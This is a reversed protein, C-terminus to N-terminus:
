QAGNGPNKIDNGSSNYIADCNSDGRYNNSGRVYGSGEQISCLGYAIAGWPLFSTIAEDAPSLGETHFNYCANFSTFCITRSTNLGRLELYSGEKIGKLNYALTNGSFPNVIEDISIDDKTLERYVHLRYEKTLINTTKVLYSRKKFGNLDGSTEFIERIVSRHSLDLYDVLHGEKKTFGKFGVFQYGPNNEEVDNITTALKKSYSSNLSLKSIKLSGTELLQNSNLDTNDDKDCSIVFFLFISILFCIKKKM